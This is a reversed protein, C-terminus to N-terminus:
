INNTKIEILAGSEWMDDTAWWAIGISTLYHVDALDMAGHTILFDVLYEVQTWGMKMAEEETLSSIKRM